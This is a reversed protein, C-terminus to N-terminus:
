RQKKDFINGSFRSNHFKLSVQKFTVINIKWISFPLAFTPEIIETTPLVVM